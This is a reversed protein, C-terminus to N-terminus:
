HADFIDIFDFNTTGWGYDGTLTDSVVDNGDMEWVTFRMICYDNWFIDDKNDGTFEGAGAVFACGNPNTTGAETSIVDSGDLFWFETTTRMEMPETYTWLLDDKGDGNFDGSAKIVFEDSAPRNPLSEPESLENNNNMFTIANDGTACDRWAFDVKGDGNFDGSAVLEMGYVSEPITIEIAKLTYSSYDVASANVSIINNTPLATYGSAVRSYCFTAVLEPYNGGMTLIDQSGDGNYDLVAVPLDDPIGMYIMDVNLEGIVQFSSNMFSYNFSSAAGILVGSNPTAARAVPAPSFAFLASAVLCLTLAKAGLSIYKNPM